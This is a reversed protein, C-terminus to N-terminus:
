RRPADSTKRPPASPPVTLPLAMIKKRTVTATPMQDIRLLIITKPTQLYTPTEAPLLATMITVVLNVELIEMGWIAMPLAVVHNRELMETESIALQLEGLNPTTIASLTPVVPITTDDIVTTGIMVIVETTVIMARAGITVEIGAETVDEVVTEDDRV